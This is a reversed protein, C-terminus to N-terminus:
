PRVHQPRQRKPADPHPAEAEMENGRWSFGQRFLGTFWIAPQLLDRVMMASLDRADVPIGCARAFALEAAYWLLVFGLAWLPSAGLAALAVLCLFGLAPAQLLEAAFLAPFGQRRIVSWRLQRDWVARATRRGVPHRSLRRPLRVRLGQARVLKTSGVDEATDRGLAALGGGAQLVRRNWFLTKGQAYGLGLTDAALQWRAQWTNLFACELAGWFNEPDSGIPPGSVLGTGQSWADALEALYDPDLMLNADTLVFWDSRAAEVGKEVNNLKPNASLSSRGTLLRAPVEPHRGMLQRLPACAPDAPDEACFIVEYGPYDQTFSSELTAYDHPDLGKVPRILSIRPRFGTPETRRLMPRLAALTCSGLQATLSITAIGGLLVNATIM